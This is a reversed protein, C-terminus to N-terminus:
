RNLKNLFVLYIFCIIYAVVTGLNIGIIPYLWFILLDYIVLISIGYSFHKLVRPFLEDKYTFILVTAVSMLMVPFSSFIGAWAYGVSKSVGTILLVLSSVLIIRFLTIKIKSTPKLKIKEKITKTEAVGKFFFICVIMSIIFIIFGSLLNLHLLTIFYGSIFYVIAGLVVASITNLYRQETFLKSGLYFGITYILANAFGAMAYPMSIMLFHLGNEKAYFYTFIGVSLPLGSCLGGLRPNKESIYILGLVMIISIALKIIILIM